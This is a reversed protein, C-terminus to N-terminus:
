LSLPKELLHQKLASIYGKSEFGLETFTSHMSEETALLQLSKYSNFLAYYSIKRFIETLVEKSMYSLDLTIPGLWMAEYPKNCDEVLKLDAKDSLVKNIRSPISTEFYIKGVVNGLEDVINIDAEPGDTVQLKIM